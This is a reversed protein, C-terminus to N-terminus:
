HKYSVQLHQCVLWFAEIARVAAITKAKVDASHRSGTCIDVLESIQTTLDNFVKELTGEANSSARSMKVVLFSFKMCVDDNLM